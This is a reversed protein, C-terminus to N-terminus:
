VTSYNFCPHAVFMVECLSHVGPNIKLQFHDQFVRTMRMREQTFCFFHTLQSICRTSLRCFQLGLGLFGFFSSYELKITVRNIMKINAGHMKLILIRKNFDLLHV